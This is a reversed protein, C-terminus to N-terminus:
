EVPFAGPAGPVPRGARVAEGIDVEVPLVETSPGVEPTRPAGARLALYPSLYRGAIKSPPWWLSVTRPAPPEAGGVTARMYTPERDSLLVGQLVPRFPRPEIPFGLQALIAEVAADAQQTAIGGQKFPFTTLDGAAYVGPSGAVRQHEDVPIFGDRDHPLGEVPRGTLRPLAVVHDAPIREGDLLTLEGDGAETAHAGTRLEIHHAQLQRRVAESARAGFLHLPAPEPTLITVHARGRGRAALRGATMLALEYLPLSWHAGDPVVFVVRQDRGAELDELLREFAHSDESGRFTLASALQRRPCAGTTVLLAHYPLTGGATTHACSGAVDVSALGDVRHVVEQDRAFRELELHWTAGDGFPELVAM